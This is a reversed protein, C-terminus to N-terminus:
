GFLESRLSPMSRLRRRKGVGVGLAPHAGDAGVAEVPDQDHATTMKLVHHTDVHPMVVLVPGM